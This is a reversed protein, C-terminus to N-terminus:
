RCPDRQIQMAQNEKAAGIGRIFQPRQGFAQAALADACRDSGEGTKGLQLGAAQLQGGFATPPDANKHAGEGLGLDGVGGGRSPADPWGPACLLDLSPAHFQQVTVSSLDTLNNEQLHATFCTSHTCRCWNGM